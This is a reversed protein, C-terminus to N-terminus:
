SQTWGAFDKATAGTAFIRRVRRPHVVDIALTFSVTTRDALLARVTGADKWSLGSPIVALEDGEVDSEGKPFAGSLSRRTESLILPM